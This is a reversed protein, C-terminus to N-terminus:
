VKTTTSSVDESQSTKRRKGAGDLEKEKKDQFYLSSSHFCPYLSEYREPRLYVDDTRKLKAVCSILERLDNEMQKLFPNTTAAAATQNKKNKGKNEKPFELM